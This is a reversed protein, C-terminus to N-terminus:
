VSMQLDASHYVLEIVGPAMMHSFKVSPHTHTHTHTHTYYSIMRYWIINLKTTITNTIHTVNTKNIKSVAMGYHQSINRLLITTVNAELIKSPQQEKRQKLIGISVLCHHKDTCTNSHRWKCCYQFVYPLYATSKLLVCVCLRVCVSCVCVVCVWWLCEWLTTLLM